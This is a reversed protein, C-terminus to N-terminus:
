NDIHTFIKTELWSTVVYKEGSLPPNGRHTHTFGAPWILVRGKKPKFRKSQYLFETEGGEEVDNLYLMTAFMRPWGSRHQGENECHWTHYGEGPLTKQINADYANVNLLDLTFYKNVYYDYCISIIENYLISLENNESYFMRYATQKASLSNPGISVLSDKIHGHYVNNKDHSIRRKHSVNLKECRKFYDIFIDIKFNDINLDFVGIFDEITYNKLYDNM